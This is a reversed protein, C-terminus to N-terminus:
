LITQLMESLLQHHIIGGRRTDGGFGVALFQPTKKESSIASLVFSIEEAEVQDTDKAERVYGQAEESEVWIIKRKRSKIEEGEEGPAESQRGSNKVQGREHHGEGNFDVHVGEVGNSVVRTELTEAEGELELGWANKERGRSAKRATEEMVEQVDQIKRPSKMTMEEVHDVTSSRGSESSSPYQLAMEKKVRRPNGSRQLRRAEDRENQYRWLDNKKHVLLPAEQSKKEEREKIEEFIQDYYKETARSQRLKEEVM